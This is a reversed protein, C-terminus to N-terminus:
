KLSTNESYVIPKSEQESLNNNYFKIYLNLFKNVEVKPIFVVEHGTYKVFANKLNRYYEEYGSIYETLNFVALINSENEKEVISSGSIPFYM